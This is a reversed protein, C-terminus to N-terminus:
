CLRAFCPSSPSSPTCAYLCPPLSPPPTLLLCLSLLSHSILKRAQTVMGDKGWEDNGRPLATWCCVEIHPPHIFPSHCTIDVPLRMNPMSPVRLSTDQPSLGSLFNAPSCVVVLRTHKQTQYDAFEGGEGLPVTLKENRKTNQTRICKRSGGLILLSPKVSMRRPSPSSWLSRWPRTLSTGSFHTECCGSVHFTSAPHPTAHPNM